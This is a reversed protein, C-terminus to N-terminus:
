WRSRCSSSRLSRVMVIPSTVKNLLLGLRMWARYVPRLSQPAVLAWGGLVGARDVALDPVGARAAM